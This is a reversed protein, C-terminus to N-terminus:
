GIVVNEGTVCVVEFVTSVTLALVDTVVATDCSMVTAVAAVIGAVFM